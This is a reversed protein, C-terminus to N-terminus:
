WGLYTGMVVQVPKTVHYVHWLVAFSRIWGLLFLLSLIQCFWLSWWSHWPFSSPTISLLLLFSLLPLKEFDIEIVSIEDFPSVGPCDGKYSVPVMGFIFLLSFWVYLSFSLFIPCSKVDLLHCLCIKLTLFLLFLVWLCQSNCQHM